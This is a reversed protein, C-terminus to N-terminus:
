AKRRETKQREGLAGNIHALSPPPSVARSGLPAVAAIFVAAPLMTPSPVLALVRAVIAAERHPLYPRCLPSPKERLNSRNLSSGM